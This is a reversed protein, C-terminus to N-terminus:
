ASVYTTAKLLTMFMHLDVNYDNTECKSLYVKNTQTYQINPIHMEM